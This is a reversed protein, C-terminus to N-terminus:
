KELIGKLNNLGDQFDKGVSEEMGMFPLMVNMPIPMAGTFGWKVKTSASDIPETIMYANNTSEFPELFRLETDIREGEEIHTIEQEGKGVDKNGEWMSTFGVTGDTGTFSKKINPDKSYWVSWNDQNKLSKLYAFVEDNPQNIVVEKEVAYDKPMIVATILVLAVLGLVIYLAKKMSRGKKFSSSFKYKVEDLDEITETRQLGAKELVRISAANTINVYAIVVKAKLRSKAFAILGSAIETAVGKGWHEEMVRYGIEVESGVKDLKAAGILQGTLIDEVLYRGLYSHYDHENLFAQLMEDSEERNLPYGTVYKMVNSNNSLRFYKDGDAATM